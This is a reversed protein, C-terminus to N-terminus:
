NENIVLKLVGELVVQNLLTNQYFKYRHMQLGDDHLKKRALGANM